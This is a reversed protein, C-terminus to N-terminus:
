TGQESNLEAIKRDLRQEATLRELDYNNMDVFQMGSTILPHVQKIQQYMEQAVLRYSPHGQRASRLELLHYAERLNLKIKWRIKYAFPVLYQAAQPFEPAIAKYAAAASELAKQYDTALGSEILEPPVVYGHAVTYDQREQSILRHRQLDRYAGIDILLDFTYYTEEFARGAKYFRSQRDGVYARIIEAKQEPSLKAVQERIQELTLHSHPYLIAAIVKDEATRDFEVLRVREKSSDLKIDELLDVAIERTTELTKAIYKSYNVGRETQSKKVFSPIIKGLEEGMSLGLSKIETHPSAAFKTLLYEFARGNGYLGVNTLTAMPLLGRLIDLAKAKTANAYARDSTKEDQPHQTKLWQTLPPILASYTDFLQDLASEYLNAYSSAMLEPERYYLYKGDKKQNFLVYRTSKELPSIGIRSDELAKAAINSIGECAIHAGGLEAISDDGYGLLVRDYFAEAQKIAILQETGHDVDGVIGQFGAEKAHIFEDLLIHRLDKESRSYRSFLAGKVVEPLNKLCFVPKDLNTVFPALLDKEQNLM